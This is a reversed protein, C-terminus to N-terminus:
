VSEDEEEIKDTLPVMVDSNVRTITKDPEERNVARKTNYMYAGVATGIAAVVFPPYLEQTMTVFVAVFFTLFNSFSICIIKIINDYYKMVAATLLGSFAMSLCIVWTTPLDWGRFLDSSPQKQWMFAVLNFVVGFCYLQINALHFSSNNKLLLESVVGATVSIFTAMICGMLGVSSYAVDTSGPQSSFSKWQAVYTSVSIVGIGIWQRKTLRKGMFFHYILGTEATRLNLVQQYVAPPVLRLVYFVLNNQACYLLGPIAYKWTDRVKLDRKLDGGDKHFYFLSISLKVSEAVFLVLASDYSSSGDDNKAYALISVMFTEFVIFFGLSMATQCSFMDPPTTEKMM